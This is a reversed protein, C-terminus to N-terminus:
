VEKLHAMTNALLRMPFYLNLTLRKMNRRSKMMSVGVYSSFGVWLIQCQGSGSLPLSSSNGWNHLINLWIQTDNNDRM